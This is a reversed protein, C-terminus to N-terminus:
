RPSTTYTAWNQAGASQKVWNTYWGVKGGDPMVTILAHAATIREVDGGGTTWQASNGGAGGHLLFRRAGRAAPL